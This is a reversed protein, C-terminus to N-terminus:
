TLPVITGNDEKVSVGKQNNAKLHETLNKMLLKSRENNSRHGEVITRYLKESKLARAFEKLSKLYYKGDMAQLYEQLTYTGDANKIITIKVLCACGGVESLTKGYLKYRGSYVNAVVILKNSNPDEYKGLITSAAITFGNNPASYRKVAANCVLQEIKDASNSKFDPLKTETYPSLKSFWEQPLLGEDTVNNRDGLLEKCLAMMIYGKLDNNGGKEFQALLYNLAEDGMKIISEYEKRHAKIYDYPNSSGGPSTIIKLYNEIKDNEATAVSNFRKSKNGVYHSAKKSGSNDSGPNSAFVIVFVAIVVIMVTVVWLAPKKFSLINKIRSKVSSEGFGLPSGTLLGSRKVSFSLLSKAYGGKIEAGMKKLVSEDCSMEMDRSMFAFSIWVLPNFWHIVATLFALPKIVYDLRRIHTREHALVYTLEKKSLAAPVFIKPKIFGFVFPSMIRDSEYVDGELRTATRVNNLVKIYSIISLGLLLVIGSIWIICAAMLVTQMPDHSNAVVSPHTSNAANGIVNTGQDITKKQIFGSILAEPRIEGSDKPYLTKFINLFSLRSSFSFPIALRIWLPLWLVYLFIKPVKRLPMRMIIIAIAVYSATISMNLLSSFLDTM